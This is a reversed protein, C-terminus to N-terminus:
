GLPHLIDSLLHHVYQMQRAGTIDADPFQTRRHGDNSIILADNSSMHLTSPVRCQRDSHVWIQLCLKTSNSLRKPQIRGGDYPHQRNLCYPIACYRQTQGSLIRRLLPVHSPQVLHPSSTSLSATAVTTWRALSSMDGCHAPLFFTNMSSPHTPSRLAVAICTYRM